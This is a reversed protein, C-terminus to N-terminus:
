PRNRWAFYYNIGANVVFELGSTRTSSEDRLYIYAPGFDLQLALKEAFFYEGGALVETAIGTGQSNDGEFSVADGELGWFISLKDQPQLYLYGRLGGLSVDTEHQAKLELAFQRTFFYRVGVGSYNIGIGLRRNPGEAHSPIPFVSVFLCVAAIGFAMQQPSTLTPM